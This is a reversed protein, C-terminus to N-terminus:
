ADSWCVNREGFRLGANLLQLRAGGSHTIVNKRWFNFSRSARVERSQVTLNGREAGSCLRSDQDNSEGLILRVFTYKWKSRSKPSETTMLNNTTYNIHL